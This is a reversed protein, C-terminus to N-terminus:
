KELVAKIEAQRIVTMIRAIEKRKAPLAATSVVQNTHVGLKLRFLQDRADALAVRREESSMDRVKTLLDKSKSM